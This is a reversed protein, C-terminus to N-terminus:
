KGGNKDEGQEDKSLYFEVVQRLAQAPTLLGSPDAEMARSLARQVLTATHADVTRTQLMVSVPAQKKTGLGQPGDQEAYLQQLDSLNAGFVDLMIRLSAAVNKVQGACGAEALAEMFEDYDAMRGALVEGKSADQVELFVKKITAAEDPLFAFTIATWDLSASAKGEANIEALLGLTKDDLGCERKLDLDEISEYLEKLTSLDDEGTIANHALQISVQKGHTLTDRTVLFTAGKLGAAMGAKCRHNGSLVKFKSTLPNWMAFPASSLAGDAKINAVLQAFQEQRMYRANHDLLEIQDWTLFETEVKM